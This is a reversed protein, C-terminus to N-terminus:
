ASLFDAAARVFARLDASRHVDDTLAKDVFEPGHLGIALAWGEIGEESELWGTNQIREVMLYDEFKLARPFREVAIDENENIWRAVAMSEFLVRNLMATQEGYGLRALEVSGRYTKTSRGIELLFIRDADGDGSRGSWPECRELYADRLEDCAALERGFDGGISQEIESESRYTVAM